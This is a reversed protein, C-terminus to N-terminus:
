DWIVQRLGLCCIIYAGFVHLFLVVRCFKLQLCKIFLGPQLIKQFGPPTSTFQLLKQKNRKTLM